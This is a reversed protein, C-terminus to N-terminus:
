YLTVNNRWDHQCGGSLVEEPDYCSESIGGYLELTSIISSVALLVYFTTEHRHFLIFQFYGGRLILM